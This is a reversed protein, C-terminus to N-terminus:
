VYIYLFIGAHMNRWSGVSREVEPGEQQQLKLKAVSRELERVKRM